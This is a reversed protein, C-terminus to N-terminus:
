IIRSDLNFVQGSIHVTGILYLVFGAVEEISGLRRIVSAARASEMAEPAATGMDTELYGPLIANVRINHMGLEEAATCTLGLVAAKSASYASQGAKGRLGSRSSINIIHGGGSAIMLPSLLRIVNFCGTLNVGLTSDWEQESQRILLNDHSVGANNVIVDLRGLRKEIEAAMAKVQEAKSVDARIAFSAGGASVATEEAEAASERYNVVLAYGQRALTMAIAKGLGRSAGTVLAIKKEM